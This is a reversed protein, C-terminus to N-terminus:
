SYFSVGDEARPSLVILCGCFMTYMHAHMASSERRMEPHPLLKNVGGFFEVDVGSCIKVAAKGGVVGRTHGPIEVLPVVDNIVVALPWNIYWPFGKL